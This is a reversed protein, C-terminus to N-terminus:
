AYGVLCHPVQKLYKSWLMRTYLFNEYLCPHENPLPPDKVSRIHMDYSFRSLSTCAKDMLRFAGIVEEGLMVTFDGRCYCFYLVEFIHSNVGIKNTDAPAMVGFAM